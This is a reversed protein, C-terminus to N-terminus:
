FVYLIRTATLQIYAEKDLCLMRNTINIKKEWWIINRKTKAWSRITKQGPETPPGQLPM